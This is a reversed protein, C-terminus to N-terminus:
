LDYCFQQNWQLLTFSARRAASTTPSLEDSGFNRKLSGGGLMSSASGVGSGM